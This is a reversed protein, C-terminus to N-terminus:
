KVPCYHAEIMMRGDLFLQNDIGLPMPASAQFVLKGDTRWASAPVIEAGSVVVAEQEHNRFTIPRGAEGSRPPAVTERYTGARIVVADGPGAVSAAKQITRFPRESTGPNTDLGNTAVHFDAGHLAAMPALLLATLFFTAPRRVNM